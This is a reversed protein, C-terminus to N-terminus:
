DEPKSIIIKRKKAKIFSQFQLGHADCLRFLSIRSERTILNSLRLEKQSSKVFNLVINILPSKVSTEIKVNRIANTPATVMDVDIVDVPKSTVHSLQKDIVSKLAGSATVMDVDIVDVPKSTVHSLQKDIVSKSAGSVTVMDVDIVDIPKSTVHSLQKEIVSKSTKCTYTSPKPTAFSPQITNPVYKSPTSAPQITTTASPMNCVPKMTASSPQIINVSKSTTAAFPQITATVSSQVNCVPKITTVASPQIFNSTESPEVHINRLQNSLKWGPEKRLNVGLGQRRRIMAHMVPEVRGKNGQRGLGGGTWGMRKLLQHGLNEKPIEPYLNRTPPDFHDQRSSCSVKEVSTNEKILLRTKKAMEKSGVAVDSSRRKQGVTNISHFCGSTPQRKKLITYAADACHQKAKKKSKGLKTVIKIGDICVTCSTKCKGNVTPSKGFHFELLKNSRQASNSLISISNTDEKSNWFLIFDKIIQGSRENSPRKAEETLIEKSKTSM